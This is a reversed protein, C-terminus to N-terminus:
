QQAGPAVGLKEQLKAMIQKAIPDAAAKPDKQVDMMAMFAEDWKENAVAQRARSLPDKVKPRWPVPKNKDQKEPPPPAQEVAAPAAGKMLESLDSM